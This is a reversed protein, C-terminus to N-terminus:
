STETSEGSTSERRAVAQAGVSDDGRDHRIAMEPSLAKMKDNFQDISSRSPSGPRNRLWIALVGVVSFAVVIALYWVNNM